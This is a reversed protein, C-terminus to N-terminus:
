PLNQGHLGPLMAQWLRCKRRVTRDWSKDKIDELDPDDVIGLSEGIRDMNVANFLERIDEPKVTHPMMRKKEHCWYRGLSEFVATILGAYIEKVQTRSFQGHGLGQSQWKLLLNQRKLREGGDDVNEWERVFGFHNAWRDVRILREMDRQSGRKARQYLKAPVTQYQGVAPLVVRIYFNLEPSQEIGADLREDQMEDEGMLRPRLRRLHRKYARHERYWAARFWRAVRPLNNKFDFTEALSLKGQKAQNSMWRTGDLLAQMGEGCDESDGFIRFVAKTIRRHDTYLKEWEDPHPRSPFAREMDQNRIAEMLLYMTEASAAIEQALEVSLFSARIHKVWRHTHLKFVSPEKAWRGSHNTAM